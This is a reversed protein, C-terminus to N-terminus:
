SMHMGLSVLLYKIPHPFTGKKSVFAFENCYRVYFKSYNVFIDYTKTRALFVDDEQVAFTFYVSHSIILISLQSCTVVRCFACYISYEFIDIRFLYVACLIGCKNDATLISDYLNFGVKPRHVWYDLVILNCDEKFSLSSNLISQFKSRISLNVLVLFM